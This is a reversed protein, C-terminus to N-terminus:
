DTKRIGKNNYGGDRWRPHMMHMRQAYHKWGLAHGIEHELVRERTIDAERVLIQARTIFGTEQSVSTKTFALYEEGVSQDVTTIVIGTGHGDVLCEISNYGFITEEFDYGSNQWYAMAMTVRSDEIKVGECVKITPPEPWTGVKQPKGIAAIEFIAQPNKELYQIDSNFCAFLALVYLM